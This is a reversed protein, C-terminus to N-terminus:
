SQYRLQNLVAPERAKPNGAQPRDMRRGFGPSNWSDWLFMPEFPYHQVFLRGFLRLGLKMTFGQQNAAMERTPVNGRKM